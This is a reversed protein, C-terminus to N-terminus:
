TGGFESGLSHYIPTTSKPSQFSEVDKSFSTSCIMVLYEHFSPSSSQHPKRIKSRSLACGLSSRAVSHDIRQGNKSRQIGLPLLDEVKEVSELTIGGLVAFIMSCPIVQESIIQEEELEM